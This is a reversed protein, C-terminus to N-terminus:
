HPGPDIGLCIEIRLDEITQASYGPLFVEPDPIEIRDERHRIIPRLPLIDGHDKM